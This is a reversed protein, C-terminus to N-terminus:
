AGNGEQNQAQNQEESMVKQRITERHTEILQKIEEIEVDTLGRKESAMARVQQGLNDMFEKHEQVRTKNQIRNYSKEFKDVAKEAYQTKNQALMVKMELTREAANRIRAKESFTERVRDWAMEFQWIASDPTVGAERIEEQTVLETEEQAFVSVSLLMLGLLLIGIIKKNMKEFGEM